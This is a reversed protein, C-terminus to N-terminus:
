APSPRVAMGRRPSIHRRQVSVAASASAKATETFSKDMAGILLWAIPATSYQAGTLWNGLLVTIVGIVLLSAVTRVRQWNLIAQRYVAVMLILNLVGGVVGLSVFMDSIDIETEGVSARSATTSAGLGYGIPNMVGQIIGGIVLNGHSAATSDEPRVFMESERHLYPNIDSSFQTNEAQNALYVIGGAAVIVAFIGRAVIVGANRGQVAWLMVVGLTGFVVPGRGGFLVIAVALLPAFLLSLRVRRLALVTLVSILGVTIYWAYEAPSVFFAFARIRGEVSMTVTGTMRLWTAEFSLFGVLTQLLGLIAALIAIPLVVRYFLREVFQRTGWAQGVFFWLLPVLHMLIGAFGVDIGGQLPNFVELAMFILVALVLKSVPTQFRISKRMAAIACLWVVVTPGVFLLPDKSVGGAHVWVYRRLDGLFALYIFTAIVGIPPRLICLACLLVGCAIASFTQDLELGAILLIALLGAGIAIPGVTGSKDSHVPRAYSIVPQTRLM